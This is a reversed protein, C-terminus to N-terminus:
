RGAASVRSAGSRWRAAIVESSTFPGEGEM